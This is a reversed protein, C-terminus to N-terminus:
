WPGDKEFRADFMEEDPAGQLQEDRVTTVDQGAGRFLAAVSRGLNEDLKFRM